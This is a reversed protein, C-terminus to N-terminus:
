TNNNKFFNLIWNIKNKGDVVEAHLAGFFTDQLEVNVKGENALLNNFIKRIEEESDFQIIININESVPYKGFTDSFHILYNGIHLEAHMIKNNNKFLIKIEGGFISKYYNLSEEVDLVYIYPSISKM